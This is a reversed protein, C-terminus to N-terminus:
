VFFLDKFSKHEKLDYNIRKRLLCELSKLTLVFSLFWNSSKSSINTFVLTQFIFCYLLAFRTKHVFNLLTRFQKGIIKIKEWKQCSLFMKSPSTSIIKNKSRKFRSFLTYLNTSRSGLRYMPEFTADFLQISTSPWWLSNYRILAVTFSASLYVFHGPLIHIKYFLIEEQYPQNM